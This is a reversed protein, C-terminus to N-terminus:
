LSWLPESREQLVSISWKFNEYGVNSNGVPIPQFINAEKNRENFLNTVVGTINRKYIIRKRSDIVAYEGEKLECNISYKHGAIYVEPNVVPGYIIMEFSAPIFGDNIINNAAVSVEFDVPFDFNFDFGGVSSDPALFEKYVEKTWFPREIVLTYNITSASSGLYNKVSQIFYCDVYEDNIFLKGPKKSLLDGELIEFIRNRVESFDNSGKSSDTKIVLEVAVDKIEKYFRDINGGLGSPNSVYDYEWSYDLLKNCNLWYPFRRLNLEIGKSSIYKVRM